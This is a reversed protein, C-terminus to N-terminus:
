KLVIGLSELDKSYFKKTIDIGQNYLHQLIPVTPGSAVQIRDLLSVGEADVAKAGGHDIIYIVIDEIEPLNYSFELPLWDLTSVNAGKDVLYTVASLDQTQVAIKLATEGEIKANIDAGYELWFDMAGFDDAELANRFADDAFVTDNGLIADKMEALRTSSSGAAKAKAYLRTLTRKRALVQEPTMEPTVAGSTISTARRMPLTGVGNAIDQRIIATTVKEEMGKRLNLWDATTAASPDGHFFNYSNYYTLWETATPMRSLTPKEPTAAIRGEPIELAFNNEQMYKQIEAWEYPLQMPRGTGDITRLRYDALEQIKSYAKLNLLARTAIVDTPGTLIGIIGKKAATLILDADQAGGFLGVNTVAAMSKGWSELSNAGSSTNMIISRYTQMAKAIQEYNFVLPSELAVSPYGALYAYEQQAKDLAKFTEGSEEFLMHVTQVPTVISPNVQAQQLVQAQHSAWGAQLTSRGLQISAGSTNKYLLAPNAIKTITPLTAAVRTGMSQIAQLAIPSTRAVETVAKTSQIAVEGVQAPLQALAPVMGVILLLPSLLLPRITQM